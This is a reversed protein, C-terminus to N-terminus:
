SNGPQVMSGRGPSLEMSVPTQPLLPLLKNKDKAFCGSSWQLFSFSLHQPAPSWRKGRFCMSRFRDEYGHLFYICPDTTGAGCPCLGSSQERPSEWLSDRDETFLTPVSSPGAPFPAQTQAVHYFSLILEWLSHEMPAAAVQM